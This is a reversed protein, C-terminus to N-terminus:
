AIEMEELALWDAWTTGDENVGCVYARLIGAIEEAYYPSIGITTVIGIRGAADIVYQNVRIGSIFKQARSIFPKISM